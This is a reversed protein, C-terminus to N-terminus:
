AILPLRPVLLLTHRFGGDGLDFIRLSGSSAQTAVPADNPAGVLARRGDSGLAVTTGFLTLPPGRLTTELSWTSGARVFLLARDGPRGRDLGAGDARPHAGDGRRSRRHRRRRRRRHRPQRIRGVGGLGGTPRLEPAAGDGRELRRRQARAREGGAGVAGAIR